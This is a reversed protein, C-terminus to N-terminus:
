PGECGAIPIAKIKVNCPNNQVNKFLPSNKVFGLGTFKNQCLIVLKKHEDDKHMEVKNHLDIM